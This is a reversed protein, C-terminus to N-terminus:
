ILHALCDGSDVALHLLCGLAVARWRWSRISFLALYLMAAWISHLPHFGISCRNPDFVPNALLHDLDILNTAVMILSAQLWDTRWFQRGLAFPLVFHGSYHLLPIIWDFAM